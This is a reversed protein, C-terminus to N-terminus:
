SRAKPLHDPPEVIMGIEQREVLFEMGSPLLRRALNRTLTHSMAGSATSDVVNTRTHNRICRLIERQTALSSVESRRTTRVSVLALEGGSPYKVASVVAQHVSVGMIYQSHAEALERLLGNGIGPCLCRVSEFSAM